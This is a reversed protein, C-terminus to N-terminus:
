SSPVLGSGCTDNWKSRLTTKQSLSLGNIPPHWEAETGHSILKLSSWLTYQLRRQCVQRHKRAIEVQILPPLLVLCASAQQRDARQPHWSRCNGTAVPKAPASSTPNRGKSAIFAPRCLRRASWPGASQAEPMGMLFMDSERGVVEVWCRRRQSNVPPSSSLNLEQKGSSAAGSAVPHRTPLLLASLFAPPTRSLARPM